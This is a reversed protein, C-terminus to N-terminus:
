RNGSEPVENRDLIRGGVNESLQPEPLDNVDVSRSADATRDPAIIDNVDTTHSADVIRDPAVVDNLDVTRTADGTREPRVIDKIDTSRSADITKDPTVVDNVDVIQDDSIVMQPEDTAAPGLTDSASCGIVLIAVFPPALAKTWRWIASNNNM